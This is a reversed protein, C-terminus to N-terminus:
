PDESRYGRRSAFVVCLGEEADNSSSRKRRARDEMRFCLFTLFRINSVVETIPSVLPHSYSGCRRSM